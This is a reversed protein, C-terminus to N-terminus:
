RVLEGEFAKKLISQRLAEAQQLSTKIQEELKDAVSLRSEIEQIIQHQENLPPKSIEVHFLQKRDLTPVATSASYKKFNFQKYYYYVFKPANGCFDKVFLVTNHPWYKEVELYNINGVSGSRGTTLCPGNAKYENHYGNIGASTIVPFEGKQIKALPLDHGRQLKSFDNFLIMEWGDPLEGDKVNQNTFRGEFAWKLVSQRYTKLQEQTKKLEEVGKDLESFLEEIKTVIRQQTELPPLPFNLESFNKLSIEKFTTGSAVKEAEQKSRKLFYYLFIVALFDGFFPRIFDDKLYIAIDQLNYRQYKVYEFNCDDEM